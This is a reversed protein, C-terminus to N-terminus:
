TDVALGCARCLGSTACIYNKCYKGSAPCIQGEEDNKPSVAKQINRAISRLELKTYTPKKGIM